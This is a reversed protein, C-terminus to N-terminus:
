TVEIKRHDRTKYKGGSPRSDPSYRNGDIGSHKNEIRVGLSLLAFRNIQFM